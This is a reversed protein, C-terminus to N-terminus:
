GGASTECAARTAGRTTTCRATAKAGSSTSTATCTACSVSTTTGARDVRPGRPIAEARGAGRRRVRPPGYRYRPGPASASPSSESGRGRSWRGQTGLGPPRRNEATPLRARPRASGSGGRPPHAPEPKLRPRAGPLGPGRCPASGGGGISQKVPNFPLALELRRCLTM